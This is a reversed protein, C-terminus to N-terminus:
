VEMLEEPTCIIPTALNSKNNVREVINRVRGSAIHTCNWSVMYDLGHWTAIALHYADSRAKEPIRIAKFYQDALGAIDPTMELLPFTATSNLRAKSAVPDGVSIENVVFQSIFPDLGPL